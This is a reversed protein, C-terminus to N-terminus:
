LLSEMIHVQMVVFKVTMEPKYHPCHGEDEVWEGDM